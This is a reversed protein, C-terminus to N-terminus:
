RRALSDPLVLTDPAARGTDRPLRPVTPRPVTSRLVGPGGAFPPTPELVPAEPAEPPAVAAATDLPEEEPRSRRGAGTYRVPVSTTNVTTTQAPGAAPLAGGPTQATVSDLWARTERADDKGRVVAVAAGGALLLALALVGAALWSRRSAPTTPRGGAAAARAAASTRATRPTRAPADVAPEADRAPTTRVVAPTTRETPAPASPAIPARVPAPTVQAEVPALAALFEDVAQWRDGPAKHLCGEIAVVLARPLGPQLTSLRPLDQERQKVVLGYLSEGEWPQQGALMEWGVLGLAYIDSRVDGSRGDIQEPALYTPWPAPAGDPRPAPALRVEDGPGVFIREPAVAGHAGRRALARGIAGLLSATREASLRPTVRLLERLTGHHPTEFAPADTPM